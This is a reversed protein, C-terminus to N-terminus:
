LMTVLMYNMGLGKVLLGSGFLHPSTILGRLGGHLAAVSNAAVVSVPEMLRAGLWVSYVLFYAAFAWALVPLAIGSSGMEATHIGPAMYHAGPVGAVMYIMAGNSLVHHLDNSDTMGPQQATAPRLRRRLLRVAFWGAAVSFIVEWYLPPVPNGWPWFMAAMGLSM